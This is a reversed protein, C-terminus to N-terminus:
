DGYSSYIKIGRKWLHRVLLLFIAIWFFQITFFRWFEVPTIKTLFIQTPVFVEFSFPLFTSITYLSKPLFQLPFLTGGFILLLFDALDQLWGIENFWFATLGITLKFLFILIITFTIFLLFLCISLPTIALSDLSTPYFLLFLCIIPFIYLLRLSKYAIEYFFKLFITNTPKTLYLSAIKGSVIERQVKDDPHTFIVTRIFMVLLYYILMSSVTYGAIERRSTFAAQWFFLMIIPPLADWCLWILGRARYELSNQLSIKFFVLYKKWNLKKGSEDFSFRDLLTIRL